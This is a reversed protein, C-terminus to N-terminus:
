GSKMASFWFSLAFLIIEPFLLLSCKSLILYSILSNLYAFSTSLTITSQVALVSLYQSNVLPMWSVASLRKFAISALSFSTEGDVM